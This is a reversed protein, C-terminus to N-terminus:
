DALKFVLVTEWKHMDPEEAPNTMLVELRAGWVEGELTPTVDWALDRRQAWDLLRATVGMLEDPHGVHSVTAYRGAPLEAVFTPAEVDVPGAVPIGAEVVLEASMDIVRYRFFPPGTIAVGRSVLSAFMGPLHDAIRAFETMIISERRGVYRQAAREIIIPEV